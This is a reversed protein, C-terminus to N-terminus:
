ESEVLSTTVDRTPREVMTLKTVTPSNSTPSPGTTLGAAVLRVSPTEADLVSRARCVFRRRSKRGRTRGRVRRVYPALRNGVPLIMPLPPKAFYSPKRRRMLAEGDRRWDFQTERLVRGLVHSARDPDREAMRRFPLPSVSNDDLYDLVRQRYRRQSLLTPDTFVEEFMAFGAFFRLGEFQDYIVAVSDSGSLDDPYDFEPLPQSAYRSGDGGRASLSPLVEGRSSVLYERMRDALQVGPMVVIDTGFFRLFRDREARQLEWGRELKEPNRFALEPHRM